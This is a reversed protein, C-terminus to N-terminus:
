VDKQNHGTKRNEMEQILDGLVDAAREDAEELAHVYRNTTKLQSHGLREGVTKIDVGSILSLTASTHRLAHFKRHPLGKRKLFKDCPNSPILELIYANHMISRLCTYYRQVAAPSLKREVDTKVTGDKSKQVIVNCDTLENVFRQIHIPKFDKLKFHGLAPVIMNEIIYQYKKMTTPAVSSKINAYYEPIFDVLRM